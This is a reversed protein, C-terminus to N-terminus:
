VAVWSLTRVTTRTLARWKGLAAKGKLPTVRKPTTDLVVEAPM